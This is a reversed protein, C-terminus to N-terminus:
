SASADGGDVPTTGGYTSSADGGDINQLFAATVIPTASGWAGAAKPGYIDLAATDIYFDGDGGLGPAPAGTGYHTTRGSLGALNITWDAHTGTGGTLDVALALTSGWYATVIGEMFNAGDDDSAARLRAGVGWGRDLEAITFVKAGTGIAVLSESTGVVGSSGPDGRNGQPGRWKFPGAWDGSADTAKRYFVPNEPDDFVGYRFGEPEGDHAGRDGLSGAADADFAFAVNRALIESALTNAQLSRVQVASVLGIDYNANSATVTSARRLTLHNDDEVSAIPFSRDGVFLVGGAVGFINWATGSGVVAASGSTLSVTGDSYFESYM